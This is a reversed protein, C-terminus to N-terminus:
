IQKRHLLWMKTQSIDESLITEKESMKGESLSYIPTVDSTKDKPNSVTEKETTPKLGIKSM